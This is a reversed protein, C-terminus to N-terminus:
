FPGGTPLGIGAVNKIQLRSSSREARTLSFYPLPDSVARGMISVWAPSM